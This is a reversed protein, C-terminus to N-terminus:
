ILPACGGTGNVDTPFASLPITVTLLETGFDFDKSATTIADNLLYNAVAEVSYKAAGPLADWSCEVSETGVSCAFNTPATTLSPMPGAMAGVISFTVVVLTVGALLLKRIM